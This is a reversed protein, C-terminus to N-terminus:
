VPVAKNTIRYKLREQAIDLVEFYKAKFLLEPTEFVRSESYQLRRPARVQRPLTTGEAGLHLRRTEAENWMIQFQEDTRLPSLEKVTQEVM